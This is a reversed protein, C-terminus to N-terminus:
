GYEGRKMRTNDIFIQVMRLFNYIVIFGLFYIMLKYFTLIITAQTGTLTVYFLFMLTILPILFLSNFIRNLFPDESEDKRRRLFLFTFSHTALLLAISISVPDTLALLAQSIIAGLICYFGHCYAHSATSVIGVQQSQFSSDSFIGNVSQNMVLSQYMLINTTINNGTLNYAFTSPIIILLFFLVYLINMSKKNEM